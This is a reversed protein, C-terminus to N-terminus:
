VAVPELRRTLDDIRGHVLCVYVFGNQTWAATETGDPRREYPASALSTASPAAPVRDAPVAVLLGTLRGPLSFAWAAARDRGHRRLLGVPPERLALRSQWFSNPLRPDFNGYFPGDGPTAAADQLEAVTVPETSGTLTWVVAAAAISAALGTLLGLARRRTVPKPVPSVAPPEAALRTLLRDRLGAPVPVDRMAAALGRDWAERRGFDARLDPDALADRLGAMEPEALDASDPRVADLRETLTPRDM